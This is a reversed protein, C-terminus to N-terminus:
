AEQIVWFNRTRENRLRCEERTTTTMLMWKAKKKMWINRVLQTGRYSSNPAKLYKVLSNSNQFKKPKLWGSHHHHWTLCALTQAKPTRTPTSSSSLMVIANLTFPVVSSRKPWWMLSNPLGLIAIEHWTCTVAGIRHSIIDTTNEVNLHRYTNLSSEQKNKSRVSTFRRRRIWARCFLRRRSMQVWKTSVRLSTKNPIAEQGFKTLKRKSMSPYINANGM